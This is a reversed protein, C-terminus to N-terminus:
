KNKIRKLLGLLFFVLGIILLSYYIEKSKERSLNALVFSVISVFYFYIPNSNKFFSFNM